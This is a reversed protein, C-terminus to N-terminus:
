VASRVLTWGDSRIFEDRPIRFERETAVGRPLSFQKAIVTSPTARVIVVHRRGGDAGPPSQWIQGEEIKMGTRQIVPREIREGGLKKGHLVSYAGGCTVGFGMPCTADSNLGNCGELSCGCRPPTM